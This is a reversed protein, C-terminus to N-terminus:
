ELAGEGGASALGYEIATARNEHAVGADKPLGVSLILRKRVEADPEDGGSLLTYEVMNARDVVGGPNLWKRDGLPRAAAAVVLVIATVLATLKEALMM